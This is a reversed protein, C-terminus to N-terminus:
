CEKGVRREESRVPDDRDDVDSRIPLVFKPRGGLPPRGKESRARVAAGDCDAYFFGRERPALQEASGPRDRDARVRPESNPEKPLVSMTRPSECCRKRRNRSM